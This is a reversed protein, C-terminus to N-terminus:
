GRQLKQMVEAEAKEQAPIIHPIAPARGFTGRKNRVVHGKELLWTLQWHDKNYVIYERDALKKTTWSKAYDGYKKPSTSQLEKATEKSQAKFANDIDEEIERTVEDLLEQMQVVLDKNSM